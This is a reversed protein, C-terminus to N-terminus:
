CQKLSVICGKLEDPRALRGMMNEKRWLDKLEPQQRFNEEVMPTIIHGPSICNVRIGPTSEDKPCSEVGYSLKEGVPYPCGQLCQVFDSMSAILCISGGCKYKIMMKAASSATELVATLNIALLKSADQASYEIAPTVQNVGAAAIVGNLQQNEDATEEIIRSLNETDCVDQQRYELRGGWAPNVRKQAVKWEEDPEEAIDICYVSEEVEQKLWGRLWHLGLGRAGGTVIFTKGGLDFDAFQKSGVEENKPLRAM